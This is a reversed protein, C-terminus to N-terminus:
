TGISRSTKQLIMRNVILLGISLISCILTAFFATDLWWNDVWTLDVYALGVNIGVLIFSIIACSSGLRLLLKIRKTKIVNLSVFFLLIASIGTVCFAVVLTVLGPISEIDRDGPWLNYWDSMYSGGYGQAFDNNFLFVIATISLAFVIFTTIIRAIKYNSTVTDVQETKSKSTIEIRQIYVDQKTEINTSEVEIPEENPTEETDLSTPDDIDDSESNNYRIKRSDQIDHTEEIDENIETLTNHRSNLLRKKRIIYHTTLAVIIVFAVIAASIPLWLISNNTVDDTTIRYDGSGSNRNIFIYYYDSDEAIFEVFYYDLNVSSQKLVAMNPYYISVSILLDSYARIVFQYEKGVELYIKYCDCNDNFSEDLQCYYTNKVSILLADYITYGADFGSNADDEANVTFSWVSSWDSIESRDNIARVRWYYLDDALNPYDYFYSSPVSENIDPSNFLFSNDIQLHYYRSGIIKDWSFYPTNDSSEANDIPSSLTPAYIYTNITLNWEESWPSINNESDIARVRWFYMGDELIPGYHWTYTKTINVILESFPNSSEVHLHYMVADTVEFWQFYSHIKNCIEGNSPRMLIPSTISEIDIENFNENRMTKNFSSELQMSILSIVLSSFIICILISNKKKM